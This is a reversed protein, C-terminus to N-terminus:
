REVLREDVPMGFHRAAEQPHIRIIDGAEIATISKPGDPTILRITEANQLICHGGDWALKFHPRREIKVRGIPVSRVGEPGLVLVEDGARLESLYRTRGGPGMVYQHVAGANVRFPRAAVYESELTEAHVLAFGRATSGILVGAGVELRQTLDICVRDGPGADAIGTVAVDVLAVTGDTADPRDDPRPGKAVLVDHAARVEAPDAPRLVVGHVGVDLTDRLVGAQEASHVVAYLSDPRDRRAAILNELPIITWDSADVIIRGPLDKAAEQGAAGDVDTFTAILVQDMDVVTDKTRHCTSGLVQECGVEAATHLFPQPDAVDTLDLWLPIRNM